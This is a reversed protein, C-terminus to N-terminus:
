TRMLPESAVPNKLLYSVLFNTPLNGIYHSTLRTDTQDSSREQHVGSDVYFPNRSISM